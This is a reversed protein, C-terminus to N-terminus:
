VVGKIPKINKKFAQWGPAESYASVSNKPVYLDIRNVNVGKFSEVVITEPSPPEDGITEPSLSEVVIIEPPTARRIIISKLNTYSFADKEIRAVSSPITVSTLGFCREFTSIDIRTVGEPIIVSTLGSCYEFAGIGIVTVGPPIEYGDKNQKGPPYRILEKKDKDFLVGNVSCFISDAKEEKKGKVVNISTLNTCGNFAGGEISTVSYPIEISKLKTCGNFANSEITTVGPPITYSDKEKGPPYRVLHNNKSFIVGDRSKLHENSIVVEISTLGTCGFFADSEIKKVRQPITYAGQKATPYRILTTENKDFLVYNEDISYKTNDTNVYISDLNTFNAFLKTDGINRVDSEIVVRSIINKLDHRKKTVATQMEDGRLYMVGSGTALSDDAPKREKRLKDLKDWDKLDKGKLKSRTNEVWLTSEKEGWKRNFEELQKRINSTNILKKIEDDIPKQEDKSQILSFTINPEINTANTGWLMEQPSLDKWNIHENIIREADIIPTEELQGAAVGNKSKLMESVLKIKTFKDGTPINFNPPPNPPTFKILTGRSGINTVLYMPCPMNISINYDTTSLDNDLIGRFITPHSHVSAKFHYKGSFPISYDIIISRTDGLRTRLLCFETDRKNGYISIGYEIRGNQSVHKIIINAAAMAAKDLSGYVPKTIIKANGADGRDKAM